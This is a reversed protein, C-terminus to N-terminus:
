RVPSTVNALRGHLADRGRRARMRAVQRTTRRREAAESSCRRGPDDATEM